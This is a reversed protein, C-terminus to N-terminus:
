GQASRAGARTRLVILSLIAFVLFVGIVGLQWVPGCESLPLRGSACAEVYGVIFQQGGM